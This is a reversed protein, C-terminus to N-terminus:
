LATLSVRRPLFPHLACPRHARCPLPCGHSARRACRAPIPLYAVRSPLPASV